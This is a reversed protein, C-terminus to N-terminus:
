ATKEVPQSLRLLRQKHKADQEPTLVAPVSYRFRRTARDLMANAIKRADEPTAAVRKALIRLMLTGAPSNQEPTDPRAFYDDTQM